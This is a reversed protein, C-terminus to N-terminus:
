PCVTTRPCRSSEHQHGNGHIVAASFRWENAKHGIKGMARDECNYLQETVVEVPMDIPLASFRDIVSDDLYIRPSPSREYRQVAYQENNRDFEANDGDATGSAVEVAHNFLVAHRDIQSVAEFGEGSSEVPAPEDRRGRLVLNRSAMPRMAAIEHADWSLSTPPQASSQGAELPFNGPLSLPRAPPELEPLLPRVAPYRRLFSQAVNKAQNVEDDPM